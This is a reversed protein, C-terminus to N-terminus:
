ATANLWRLREQQKLHFLDITQKTLTAAMEEANVLHHHLRQKGLSLTHNLQDINFLTIRSDKEVAPDVNRPVSLDILLKKKEEQFDVPIAKILSDPSKTGFIVWDFEHWSHLRNWNIMKIGQSESAQISKEATRNCLTMNHINKSKFFSIVKINIESAGVFLIRINDIEKFYNMGKNWIAHELSPLNRQTPMTSRIQKAIKLSKQFLYHLELPLTLYEKTKEYATKVQGQIETEGFIASDLGATVKSLHLFCDLGFYSYLKQDFEEGVEERLVNLIYTHTDALEESVFYVETRNCTSLPIFAHDGFHTSSRGFRRHCAKALLERLKVDALKHNIGVVGIRM